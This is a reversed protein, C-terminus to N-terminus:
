LGFRMFLLLGPWFRYSDRCPGTFAEFFPRLKEVWRFCFLHSRRQLCQILMLSFTFWCLAVAFVIGVVFLPIHKPGYYPVNGDYYWVLRKKTGNITSIHLHTCQFTQLLTYMIPSYMLFLLTALVKVINKGLLRTFFVFRRCLAVVIAVAVFNYLLSGYLFWMHKYSDMGNYFCIESGYDLNLLAIFTWCVRGFIHSGTSLHSADNILNAHTYMINAYVILGSITGETININLVGLLIVVILGSLLYLPIILFIYWNSCTTCKTQSGFVRSLGPKCAGCLVGTRGPLCQDDFSSESLVYISRNRRNCLSCYRNMALDCHSQNNYADSCGFWLHNDEAVKIIVQTNINCEVYGQILPDCRCEGQILKFGPPCPLLSLILSANIQKYFVNVDTTIATFNIMVNSSNSHVIYTLNTCGTQPQPKNLSVLYDKSKKNVFSADIIGVTTGNFQGITTVSTNFKQGPYATLDINAQNCMVHRTLSDCFCIGRPNSSINSSGTQEKMDFINQFIQKQYFINRTGNYSYSTLIYCYDVSGGYIADGAVSASNNAFKVQIYKGFIEIPITSNLAPQFLCAPETDLCGQQAYVAGGKHATNNFFLVNTGNHLFVLSSDCVKLAAGYAAHNYSFHVNNHFNLNSNRLSFVSGYNHTFKCNSLLVSKTGILEMIASQQYVPVRNSIFESNDIHVSFQPTLHVIYDPFTQKLIEMAAANGKNHIFKCNTIIIQRRKHKPFYDEAVYHTIYMAGGTSNAINNYFRSHSITLISINEFNEINTEIQSWFQIGGGKLAQGEEFNSNNITITSVNFGFDTLSLALNGGNIGRNGKATINNLKVNIGHCYILLQLGSANYYHGNQTERGYLFWTRNIMLQTEVESCSSGFWFRVNGGFIHAQKNGQANMFVCDNVLIDGFVNNSHLGLGITNNIIVHELVLDTIHDFALAVYLSLNHVKGSCSDIGLSSINIKSSNTFFLGSTSGSVRSCDIWSTPQPQGDHGISATKNGTMTFNHCNAVEIFTELLHKGQLFVMTANSIFSASINLSYSNLTQCQSDPVGPPCTSNENVKVYFVPQSHLVAFLTALSLLLKWYENRTIASPIKVYM